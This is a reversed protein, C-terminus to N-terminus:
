DLSLLHGVMRQRGCQQFSQEIGATDVAMCGYHRYGCAAVRCSLGSGQEGRGGHSLLLGLQYIGGLSSITSAKMM